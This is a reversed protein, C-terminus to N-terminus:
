SFHIKLKSKKKTSALSHFCSILQEVMEPELNMGVEESPNITVGYGRMM